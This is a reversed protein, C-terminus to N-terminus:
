TLPVVLEDHILWVGGVAFHGNSSEKQMLNTAAGSTCDVQSSNEVDARSTGGVARRPTVMVDLIGVRAIIAQRLM